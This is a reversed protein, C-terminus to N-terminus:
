KVILLPTCHLLLVLSLITLLIKTYINPNIIKEIIFSVKRKKSVSKNVINEITLFLPWPIEPLSLFVMLCLETESSSSVFSLLSPLSSIVINLDLLWLVSMLLGNRVPNPVVNPVIDPIAPIRSLLKKAVILASLSITVLISLPVSSPRKFIILLLM